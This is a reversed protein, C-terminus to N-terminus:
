QLGKAKDIKSQTQAKKLEQRLQVITKPAPISLFQLLFGATIFIFRPGIRVEDM